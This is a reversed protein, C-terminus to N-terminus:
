FKFISKLEEENLDKGVFSLAMKNEKIYKSAVEELELATIKQYIETTELPTKIEGTLLEQLAYHNAVENSDEMSILLRGYIYEKARKLESESVGDRIKKFENIIAKIAEPVRLHPVGAYTEIAGADLYSSASSKVAYALGRKERIETFMRSSMGGGLILLLMKLLHRDQNKYSAGSFGIVIHSQETKRNVLSFSKKNNLKFEPYASLSKSPFVFYDEVLKVVENQDLDGFNGALVIVANNSTYYKDRFNTLTQKSIKKISDRYGIVDRGLANNGFLAQEFKNAAVEMPLDEYMDLEQLIVDKERNLENEDFLPNELLDSLFDLSKELYKSAVKTYYGTYEKSTFANHEGGIEEIFEAIAMATPRKKTGKYHMHELVHAIGAENEDEYRSGVGFVVMTTVVQKSPDPVLIVRLGNKLIHKSYISNM